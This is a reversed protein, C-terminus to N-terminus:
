NSCVPGVQISLGFESGTTGAIYGTQTGNPRVDETVGVFFASSAQFNEESSLATRWPTTGGSCNFATGIIKNGLGDSSLPFVEVAAPGTGVLYNEDGEQHSRAAWATVLQYGDSRGANIGLGSLGHIRRNQPDGSVVQYHGNAGRHIRVISAGCNYLMEGLLERNKSTPLPFGVVAEFSTPAPPTALSAPTEPALTSFPFSVYEHNIFLLGDLPSAGATGFFATYDHNYGVYQDPDLFVRDGWRVIVYREFEPSVVVDDIVTYSALSPDPSAPLVTGTGIGTALYSPRETYVPLPHPLRVPTFAGPWAAEAKGAGIGAGLGNFRLASAAATAGFFALLQRRTMAAM